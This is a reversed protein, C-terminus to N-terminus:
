PVYLIGFKDFEDLIGKFIFYQTLPNRRFGAFARQIQGQPTYTFLFGKLVISGQVTPLKKDNSSFVSQCKM